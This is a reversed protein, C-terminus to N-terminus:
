EQSMRLRELLLRDAASALADVVVDATSSAGPATIRITMCGAARGAQVDTESDGIMASGALDLGHEAAARLLLGPAPKRCGCAEDTNHPCYYFATIFGGHKSVGRQIVREISALTDWSVLDRAVGRQNSVVIVVYGAICLRAVAERAGPLWRFDDPSRLYEHEPPRENLVGDRDLFVGV